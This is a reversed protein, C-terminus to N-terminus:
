LHISLGDYALHVGEPLKASWTEHDVFFTMHTLWSQPAGIKQAAAVAEDVTMHSPHDHPRLGDLIVVDAGQALRYGEETVAKCDNYYVCKKGTSKEVFVMGITEFRGHPLMAAYVTGGPLELAPPMDHLVFAPYGKIKPKDGIAYPFVERVRRLGEESGYVNIAGFDNLDCFRRLDDMGMIHDAHGHTLLFTDIETINNRLCQLRFEPGADVQIHWGDMVIHMACRTRWNKSNSLDCGENDHAIMPVGQSTGTGLFTIDM